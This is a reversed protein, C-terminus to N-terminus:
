TEGHQAPKHCYSPGSAPLQEIAPLQLCRCAPQLGQPIWSVELQKYWQISCHCLTRDPRKSRDPDRLTRDLLEILLFYGSIFIMSGFFAALIYILRKRGNDTLPYEPSAIVQLNATTMKINQLRLHAEALGAIQRRYNDEAIGVAREKRKIQTGVPSFDRYQDVIERQRDVLVKVEAKAKAENICATLWETVM